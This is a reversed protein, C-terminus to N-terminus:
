RPRLTVPLADDNDDGDASTLAFLAAEGDIEVVTLLQDGIRVVDGVNLELEIQQM